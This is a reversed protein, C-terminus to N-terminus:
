NFFAVFRNNAMAATTTRGSPPRAPVAVALEALSEPFLLPYTEVAAGTLAFATAAAGGPHM